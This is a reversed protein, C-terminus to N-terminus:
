RASNSYCATYNAYAHVM